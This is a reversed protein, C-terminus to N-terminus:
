SPMSGVGITAMPRLVISDAIEFCYNKSPSSIYNATGVNKIGAILGAGLGISGLSGLAGTLKNIKDLVWDLSKILGVVGESNAINGITDTWTNSLRNM